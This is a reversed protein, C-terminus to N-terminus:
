RLGRANTLRIRIRWGQLHPPKPPLHARRRCATRKYNRFRVAVRNDNKEFIPDDGIPCTREGGTAVQFATSSATRM